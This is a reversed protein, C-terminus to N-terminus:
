MDATHTLEVAKRLRENISRNFHQNFESNQQRFYNLKEVPLLYLLTDEVCLAQEKEQKNNENFYIDGEAIKDTLQNEKDRFEIAGTRVICLNNNTEKLESFLNGRRMYRITLSNTIENLSIGDLIDFPPHAMIFDRIEILEIEM